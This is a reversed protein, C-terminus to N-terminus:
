YIFYQGSNQAEGLIYNIKENGMSGIIMISDSDTIFRNYTKLVNELANSIKSIQGADAMCQFISYQIRLGYNKLTKEIKSRLKNSTIDYSIFHIDNM